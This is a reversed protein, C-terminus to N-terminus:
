DKEVKKKRRRKRPDKIREIDMEPGEKFLTQIKNYEEEFLPRIEEHRMGKFFEIKFGAMNKLYITMNKRAQAVSVHKRKLAQYKRVFNSQRSQVQSKLSATRTTSEEKDHFVIGKAKPATTIDVTTKTAESPQATTINTPAASVLEENAANLKGGVINVEDIIIKATTIVEVMEKAVEKVDADNVDQMSLVTEEHAMDLNYVNELNVEADAIKAKHSSKMDSPLPDNSTTPVHDETHKETPSVKTEQREKRRPKHKRQQSSSPADPIPTDQIVTPLDGVEEIAKHHSLDGLKYNVFVQIFRPFMYLPVGAELNKKLHDLIYKSFNFKQNNALCIIASAITSSFENWSTTIASICQLIPHIFFKWQPSFFAKYFTLNESPKEYGIRALEKFIVANPLCSTGKADNLKLDNRISAETVVVKKGDILAQLRVDDNVTKIKVTTWFQKICSTYIIPSVTLAYQGCCSSAGVYEAETTSNAVVTQKKCQWSILRCGLFQCGGTISKIDLSEGTYDNDTYAVLDFPFDKLYWLGLKPQGKLYRFIRKVAHLHSVKPTVQYRACGCVNFMIYPRSLTLYMLSGIMSRYLHVDVEEGDKDKLLPKLTEMPTSAKKVNSFRFKKLIETVYKDQSIFVGEKMQKVQLGLFFTLEGMSSMQFNEHMLIEFADRMEKKTSGFIINNPDDNGDCVHDYPIWSSSLHLNLFFNQNGVNQVENYGNLNGANQVQSKIGCTLTMMEMVYMIMHFGLLLYIFISSSIIRRTQPSSHLDGIVQELPHDKHIRIVLIPNVQFSSDLNHFDVEAGFVDEDDHSDEFIGIDELSPMNLNPPLDISINIGVVNVGSSSVANINSTITNVRNTSNTSDGEGQANCENEKRLDEDVRNAGDNSPQFENNQFSKSTTSFPSNVTWLPLLIYDKDPEKEKGADNSAKTGSFDNSQMVVLRNQVYCATNVAEDWFTTPLKSDALMTRAAEILTRNRREAVRNEQPTRAVSYQRMISNVKCLQNMERNKFETRNDCRIVKLKLNMLNEVRTIFSKLTSSTEDKTGKGTIKGGKPNGGFAVYGGNIEEYDILFSMNGIMHKSRGRADVYDFKKLTISASSHRSVHDLVHHKPKWICCASAKVVNGKKGKVVNYKAKAKAANVNKVTERHNNDTTAKVFNIRNISLKVEQKEVEKEEDDSVWDKIIPANSNKRISEPEVKNSKDKSKKTKPENFLEELWTSSLDSKPPPFLGIHPLPVANYGLGKKCNDVIQCEIIKNLSKSANKLKNVNIQIGARKTGALDLRRQLETLARDKLNKIATLCSKSCDSIKSDSSSASPTSYAMLAYNTPGEVAQDSWDYGGLGDCSVLALSKSTEVPVTKRTVDKSRNDHGRPARCERAFHGRKHCNYCEVKTKDFSVSDNRNLNLKRGTNKLFRRARMTLIAMQWKLDMEELDDPHIQELDENVLQTSQPHSALFACIVADSLNDINLSSAANVQSSITNVGNASNVGQATNVGNSSNSNNSFSSVFPMNQTNTNSSIGKVESEYIVHMGWESSLSRLFKQNIDEQSIAEGLFELQSVLKQLKDFTQDLSESSSRSFNKYQEDLLNRQTKKTDDNGGFRKEITALLSKADKFSNFKLQHENPLGMMLTCRAKVDNRRQLKEDVTTPPIVIEVNNVKFYCSYSCCKFGDQLAFLDKHILILNKKILAEKCARIRIGKLRDDLATRVDTLTGDSFKHLEHIRMLRNKKDKNQYIFRRPNSYATYAEERKLDSRYTDPKTLNLRKQYSEVGLQLDEVRRQIVISRTFMWLSVNFAFREEVTLNTLKGQVLLLLMDKIDQIRLRKFDGQKFKYLKDDDQRVTIWDLHKYSHWEVIKLETVAIIRRKSYVDRASEWNVDFGYFKTKTVSTTYKHSSAGRRLHELDNNIFHEFPIVRLGQNDPILPLPQLLNQPYQQGEPNVLEYTPGVILEPTLTDVKLQRCRDLDPSITSRGASRTATELPASASDPEKGEKRRKSGRDPRASPEEDKDEDDDRRRKLTVTKRYTDLIIKDSEYADVLAKYLNRQEDLCQISKNGEIKEILIKKLEMKSLDAAVAYSTRSSHSLRTLVEAELQENMATKLFEDNERQIEDRLRDPQIQVAVKVAENMRQDMYHNVIEPISSVAGAFQNIQKFESFNEELSRLRDDFRFLSGFSPLHQIINSLVTLLIPAQSTTTTKAITSSTMNPTTIPLPAVSTPTPVDLQSTTEFISEMGVDLTLNLLSTVFQSSVSSSEQQGDPKIPTLTVHSDEVELSALLGRGQNINVDRYLEDEEEEEEHREEEGINLDLDEEGDDEDESDKPTQPIPDFSEEERTEENSEHEDDGGEKDDDKDDDRVVKQDVDDDDGIGEEGDDGEDEEDSDDDQEENDDSEDDTSNQCLALEGQKEQSDFSGKVYLPSHYCGSSKGTLCKNILAAFSRWPHYLKNINVDTLTRIAVSHGLFHIFAIIEEEFPPEVFPQGHVRPCIHLIDRFSELDIIHKKTDM